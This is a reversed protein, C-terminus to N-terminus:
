QKTIWNGHEDSRSVVKNRKRRILTSTHFFKTNKDGLRLSSIRIQQMWLLEEQKLTENLEQRLKEELKLLGKSTYSFLARQIGELRSTLRRKRKFINGFTNNNWDSLKESLDKLAIPLNLEQKWNENLVRGFDEYEMCAAPFRFPQRGLHKSERELTQLMILCHDSHSHLLHRLLAEPFARRWHDDCLAKDLCVSRRTEIVNSHNWTHRPGIFGIDILGLEETWNNFGM